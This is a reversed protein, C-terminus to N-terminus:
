STVNIVGGMYKAVDNLSPAALAQYYPMPQGGFTRHQQSYVDSGLPARFGKSDPAGRWVVQRRQFEARDPPSVHFAQTNQVMERYLGTAPQESPRGYIAKRRYYPEVAAIANASIRVNGTVGPAHATPVLLPNRFDM